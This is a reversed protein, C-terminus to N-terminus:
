PVMLIDGLQRIYGPGSGFLLLLHSTRKFGLFIWFKCESMGHTRNSIYLFLNLLALLLIIKCTYNFSSPKKKLAKAFDLSDRYIM